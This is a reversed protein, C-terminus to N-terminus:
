TPEARPQLVLGYETGKINTLYVSPRNEQLFQKKSTELAEAAISDGRSAQKLAREAIQNAQDSASCSKVSVILSFLAIATLSLDLFFRKSLKM